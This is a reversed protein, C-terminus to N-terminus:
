WRSSSNPCNSSDLTHIQEIRIYWIFGNCQFRIRKCVAIGNVIDNQKNKNENREWENLIFLNWKWPFYCIAVLKQHKLKADLKQHKTSHMCLVCVCMVCAWKLMSNCEYRCDLGVLGLEIAVIAHLKGHIDRKQFPYINGSASCQCM